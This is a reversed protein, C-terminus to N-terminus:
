HGLSTLARGLDDRFARFSPSRTAVLDLDLRRAIEIRAEREDDHGSLRARLLDKAERAPLGEPAHTVILGTRRRSRRVDM